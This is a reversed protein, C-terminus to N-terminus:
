PQSCGSACPTALILFHMLLIKLDKPYLRISLKVMQLVLPLQLLPLATLSVTGYQHGLLMNLLRFDFSLFAEQLSQLLREWLQHRFKLIAFARM